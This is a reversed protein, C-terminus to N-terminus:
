EQSMKKMYTNEHDVFDNSANFANSRKKKLEGWNQKNHEDICTSVLFILSLSSFDRM